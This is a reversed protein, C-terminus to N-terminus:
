TTPPTEDGEIVKDLWEDQQLVWRHVNDGKVLSLFYTAKKMLDKAITSNNNLCM